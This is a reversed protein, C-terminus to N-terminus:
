LLSISRECECSTIPLTVMILMLTRINPFYDQDAHPLAKIPTNLDEALNSECDEWKAEWLDLEIDLSRSSPLDDEYLKLVKSFNAKTLKESVSKNYLATPLLQSFETVIASSETNFCEDLESIMHHLLPITLNLKYYEAATTAPTNQRHQQRGALHSASQEVGVTTGLQVAEKYLRM